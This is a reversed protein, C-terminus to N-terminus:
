EATGFKFEPYTIEEDHCNDCTPKTYNCTSHCDECENEMHIEDLPTGTIKHNFNESDWETHCNACECDLGTFQGKQVHCRQCDLTSHFKGLEWGTRALHNFPVKKNDTHCFGCDKQTEHCKSCTAHKEETTLEAKETTPIKNHCKVCSENQHCQSCELGFITTHEKHSFDVKNGYETKTNYVFNVPEIIIPHTRKTTEKVVQINETQGKLQHCPTCEVDNSWARHCNMCQQHFAGKLDPKSIDERIRNISHCQDCNIINGPPNYHHCLTCGGAMGAMEAHLKHTFIVPEYFDSVSELENLTLIDPGEEPSHYITAMKDRPCLIMCPNEKTPIDCEHCTNCKIDKPLNKHGSKEQAYLNNVLLILSVILIIKKM